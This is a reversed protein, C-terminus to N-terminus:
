VLAGNECCQNFQLQDDNSVILDLVLIWLVRLALLLDLCIYFLIFECLTVNKMGALHAHYTILIKFAPM